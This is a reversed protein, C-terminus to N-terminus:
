PAVTFARADPGWRQRIRALMPKAFRDTSVVIADFDAPTVDSPRRMPWDLCTGGTPEANDDLVVVIPVASRRYIDADRITFRGAGYIAVRRFGQAALNELLAALRVGAPDSTPQSGSSDRGMSTTAAQEALLAQDGQRFEANLQERSQPRYTLANEHGESPPSVQTLRYLRFNEALVRTLRYDLGLRERTEVADFVADTDLIWRPPSAVLKANHSRQWGPCVQDLYYDPAVIPTV